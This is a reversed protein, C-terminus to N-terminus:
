GNNWGLMEAAYERDSLDIRRRLERMLKNHRDRRSQIAKERSVELIRRDFM